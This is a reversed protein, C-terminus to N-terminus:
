AHCMERRRQQDAAGGCGCQASLRRGVVSQGCVRAVHEGHVARGAVLCPKPGVGVVRGRWRREIEGGDRAIRTENPGAIGVSRWDVRCQHAAQEIWRLRGAGRDFCERTQAGPDLAKRGRRRGTRCRMVDRAGADFWQQRALRRQQTRGRGIQPDQRKRVDVHPACAGFMEGFRSRRGCQEESGQSSRRLRRGHCRHILPAAQEGEVDLREAPIAVTPAGQHARPCAGRARVLRQYQAGVPEDDM